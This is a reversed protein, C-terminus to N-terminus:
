DPQASIRLLTLSILKTIMNPWAAGIIHTLAHFRRSSAFSTTTTRLGASPPKWWTATNIPTSGFTKASLISM